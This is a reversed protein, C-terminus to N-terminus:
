SDIILRTLTPVIENVFKLLLKTPMPRVPMNYTSLIFKTSTYFPENITNQLKIISVKCKRLFDNLGDISSYAKQLDETITDHDSYRSFGSQQFQSSKGQDREAILMNSSTKIKKVFLKNM